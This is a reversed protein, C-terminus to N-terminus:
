NKSEISEGGLNALPADALVHSQGDYLIRFPNLHENTKRAVVPVMSPLLVNRTAWHLIIHWRNMLCKEQQKSVPSIYMTPTIFCQVMNQTMVTPLETPSVFSAFQAGCTTGNNCVHVHVITPAPDPTPDPTGGGPPYKAGTIEHTVVM